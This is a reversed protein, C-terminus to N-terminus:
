PAALRLDVLVPDHDSSRLWPSEPPVGPPYAANINLVRSNRVLPRLAASAFAYDLTGAEGRYVFTYEHRLGTSATLDKFGVEIITQIPDELRYANLDGIILARGGAHLDALRTVWAAMQRAAETRTQNWCGQGDLKNANPGTEPCSGKSKLHNVAVLFGHGGDTGAFVQALPQRNLRQFLESDLVHAEGLPRLRDPRYFLGVTIQDSGIPGDLPDIAAWPHGTAQQLDALLNAAASRPGFGDNELEQVGLLHPQLYGMAAVLRERQAEFGDVTRAGRPAPFGGGAGDGNFYNHLNLSVVRIEDEPVPPPPYQQVPLYTLPQEALLRARSGDNGMVGELTMVTGGVAYPHSDQESLAIQLLANRNRAAQRRAEAGPRAVETPAPLIRNPSIGLLGQDLRYVDTVALSQHFGLRMAELAERDSQDLPLRTDSLPLPMGSECVRVNRIATLATLTDPGEGLETVVGAAALLDGTGARNAVSADDLFIANSTAPDDDSALEELFLGEGPQIRTVIGRVTVAEGVRPSAAERGQIGAIAQVAGSCTEAPLEGLTPQRSCSAVLLTACFFAALPPTKPNGKFLSIV